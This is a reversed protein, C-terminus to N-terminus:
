RRCGTHILDSLRDAASQNGHAMAAQLLVQAQECNRTVGDGRAYLDALEVEATVSGKGVADWLLQRARAPDRRRGDPGRTLLERAEDVEAQAADLDTASPMSNKAADLSERSSGSAVEDERHLRASSRSENGATASGSATKPGTEPRVPALGSGAAPVSSNGSSAGSSASLDGGSSLTPGNTKKTGPPPVVAASNESTGVSTGGSNASGSNPSGSNESGSNASGSNAASASPLNPAAAGTSHPATSDPATQASIPPSSLRQAASANLSTKWRYVYYGAATLVVAFLIVLLFNRSGHASEEADNLGTLVHPKRFSERYVAAGNTEEAATALLSLPSNLITARQADAVPVVAVSAEAKAGQEAAEERADLEAVSLRGAGSNAAVPPRNVPAGRHLPAISETEQEMALSEKASASLNAGPPIAPSESIAPAPSGTHAAPEFNLSGLMSRLKARADYPLDIFRIGGTKRSEDCWVLEGLADLHDTSHMSFWFKLNGETLIPGVSHFRLGGESVDVVIGGNNPEINIYALNNLVKRPHRRRELM